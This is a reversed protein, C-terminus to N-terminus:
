WVKLCKNLRRIGIIKSQEASLYTCLIKNSQAFNKSFSPVGTSIDDNQSKPLTSGNKIANELHNWINKFESFQVGFSFHSYLRILSTKLHVSRIDDFVNDDSHDVIPSLEWTVKKRLM